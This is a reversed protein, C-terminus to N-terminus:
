RVYIPNSFIWGRRAGRFRIYAEVRYVGPESTIHTMNDRKRWEKLIKGDKILRCETILPLHIQLTVGPRCNIEDGMQAIGAQGQAIFRFGRTSYPLDYGIFAHGQRLADLVMSRDEILVGDLPEPLLLHTNIARFHLPYPFLIRHLPGLRAPVAHADGSGIAVIKRGKILLEDWKRIAEPFPGRAIRPFHYAYYIAHLKSKVRSKFESITNWLEIGTFGMVNWDVWSVDLEGIARAPSDVPHALFALGGVQRIMDLLRQTNYALPALERAAGFVLLHNKQPERAQDHIEEGVLLLVQRDGEQYYGEPGNVWVNHDTIIVVDLGAQMAARAVQEHSAHGDSYRTHVHLNATIEYM